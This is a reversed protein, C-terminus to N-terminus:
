RHYQHNIRLASAVGKVQLEKAFKIQVEMQLFTSACAIAVIINLTSEL